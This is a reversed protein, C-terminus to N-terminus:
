EVVEEGEDIIDESENYSPQYNNNTNSTTEPSIFSFSSIIKNYIDLWYNKNNSYLLDIKFLINGDFAILTTQGNTSIEKGKLNSLLQDKINASLTSIKNQKLWLDANNISEETAQISIKGTNTNSNLILKSYANTDSKTENTIKINEPYVFQFGSEDKYTLFKVNNELTNETTQINPKTLNEKSIPTAIKDKRFLMMSTLVAVSAFVALSIIVIKIRMIKHSYHLM